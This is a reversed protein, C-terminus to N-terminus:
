DGIWKRGYVEKEQMYSVPRGRELEERWARALISEGKFVSRIIDNSQKFCEM